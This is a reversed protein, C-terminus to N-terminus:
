GVLLRSREAEGYGASPNEVVTVKAYKACIGASGDVSGQNLVLIHDAFQSCAWLFRDLIWAEDRVPTIVVIRSSM